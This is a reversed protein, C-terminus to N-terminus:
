TNPDSDNCQFTKYMFYGVGIAMIGLGAYAIAVNGFGIGYLWVISGIGNFMILTSYKAKHEKAEKQIRHYERDNKRIIKDVDDDTKKMVQIFDKLIQDSIANGDDDVIKM